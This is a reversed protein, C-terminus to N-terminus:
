ILNHSRRFERSVESTLELARTAAQPSISALGCSPTILCRELLIDYSIGKGSLLRMIQQLRDLLKPVTEKELSNEESPVIGFAIIGGRKLFAKLESPYLALSEGYNYADFNLIDISTNMLVSWDTNGCCHIGKLGKLGGIVENILKIVTDNSLPVFASGLSVLYPEDIFIITNPSLKALEREQWAAKLRLHKALADALTEDYLISRRDQDTVLLGFSIPGTIQGKVAFNPRPMQKLFQHLGAANEPSIAYKDIDKKLYAEYLRQLPESLDVSRDIYVRDGTIVIGPLGESYQAYMNELFSRNPLQPWVPIDKLNALAISCAEVPDTHPMSGIATALGNPTFTRKEL